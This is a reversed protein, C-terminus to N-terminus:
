VVVQVEYSDNIGNVVGGARLISYIYEIMGATIMEGPCIVPIGPPYPTVPERSIRGEARDLRVKETGAAIVEPFDLKQPPIELSVNYIDTINQEPMFEDRLARIAQALQILQDKGDAATAICIINFFDSMEVQIRSKGWLLGSAEYGSVGADKFNIVMRTRDVTYGEAPKSTLRRIGTIDSISADFDEMAELLSDLRERGEKVMIERALDLSSLLLYSPSSTQLTRLFFELRDIDVKKTKAHLYAGQTFSPLTKHASQVCLDAGAEMASVPLMPHFCFHAGHAEDVLLIKGFAHTIDALAQIDACIGYYNPRTLFVGVAEPHAELAAKLCDPSVVTSIGFKESYQPKIYVPQVGALMMGSIVSRHCDRAVILKDGPRCTALVMAHIGVSSGNVLFWTRDAGFASAALEQAQRIAGEPYHLNDTGPLETVDLFALEDLYEEPLLRGLKHGPMHFPIPGTRAYNMVAHYIPVNWRNM